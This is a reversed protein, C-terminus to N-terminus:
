DLYLEDQIFLLTFCSTWNFDSIAHVHKRWDPPTTPKGKRECEYPYIKDRSDYFEYVVGTKKYWKYVAQLTKQKLEQALEDYGYKYLGKIVFYNLNLWAGGRWMDTGYMPHTKAVTALPLETWLLDPNTLAKVMKQAQEKSPVGVMLPIFSSPTLVKTFQGSFLRDYYVGDEEDWLNANIQAKLYDSYEKWEGSKKHDGLEAYIKALYESDQAQFASFDMADMNEDFEFRPSNDQGSEGSKCNTYESEVLWELLGNGNKDRNLRDWTLYADLKKVCEKLFEKDGTKKYVEWTGWALVQPQTEDTHAYPNVMSSIFGNDDARSLVSRICDKAMDKDYTAFALAHFVSDWLWMQRHPVRDPTTWRCTFKGEATHVNVKQVSLAKYYLREYKKNKCKPKNKFYAYREAKLSEVDADIWSKASCRAFGYSAMSHSIAFKFLGNEMQRYVVSIADDLNTYVDAGLTKQYKLKKQGIIKPLVPSYGVLTDMDAFTMFFDGDPTTADIMDGSIANFRVRGKVPFYVKIWERLEFRVEIKRRTLTGVFDNYYRNKGDLGSFGFLQGYGWVNHLKM